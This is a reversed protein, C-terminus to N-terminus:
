LLDCQQAGPHESDIAVASIRWSSDTEILSLRRIYTVVEGNIVEQTAEDIQIQGDVECEIATAWAGTVEVSLVESSSINPDPPVVRIGSENNSSLGRQLAEVVPTEVLTEAQAPNIEGNLVASVRLDYWLAVVDQIEAEAQATPSLTTATSTTTATTTTAARTSGTDDDGGSCAAAALALVALARTAPVLPRRRM